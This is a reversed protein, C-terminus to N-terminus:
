LRLYINIVEDHILTQIESALDNLLVGLINTKLFNNVDATRYKTKLNIINPGFTNFCILFFSPSSYQLPMASQWQNASASHNELIYYQSDQM